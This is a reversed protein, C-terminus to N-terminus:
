PEPLGPSRRPGPPRGAAASWEETLVEPGFAAKTAYAMAGSETVFAAGADEDYTSLLLVRPPLVLRSLRRTAEVGDMGPLNVDLLVLDPGLVAAAVLCAEGSSAKGVVEFGPTEQVVLVLARLFSEQDDVVLVRVDAM